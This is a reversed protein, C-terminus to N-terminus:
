CGRSGGPSQRLTRSNHYILWLSALAGLTNLLIDTFSAYRGPVHLQHWEDLIGYGTALLFAMLLAQRPQNIWGQLSRWWLWTLVGFVPVHLLNQAAPPTWAIIGYLGATAPDIDGPLLSLWYIGASYALTLALFFYGQIRPIATL